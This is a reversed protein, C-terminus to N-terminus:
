GPYTFTAGRKFDLYVDLIQGEQNLNYDIVYCSDEIKLAKQFVSYEKNFDRM